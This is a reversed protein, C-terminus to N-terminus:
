RLPVRDGVKAERSEDFATIFETISLSARDLTDNALISPVERRGIAVDGFIDDCRVDRRIRRVM